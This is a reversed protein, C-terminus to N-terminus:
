KKEDEGAEVPLIATRDDFFLETFQDGRAEFLETVKAALLEACSYVPFFGDSRLESILAMKGKKIAERISDSDYNAEYVLYYKDKAPVTDERVRYRRGLVAHENISLSNKDDNISIDYRQLM